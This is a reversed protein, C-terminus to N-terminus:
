SSCVSESTPGGDVQGEGGRSPGLSLPKLPRNTYTYLSLFLAKM